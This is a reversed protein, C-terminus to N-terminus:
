DVSHASRHSLEARGRDTMHIRPDCSSAPGTKIWGSTECRVMAETIPKSGGPARHEDLEIEIGFPPGCQVAELVRREAAREARAREVEPRNM